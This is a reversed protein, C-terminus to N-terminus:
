QSGINIDTQLSKLAENVKMVGIHKKLLKKQANYLLSSPTMTMGLVETCLHATDRVILINYHRNFDYERNMKQLNVASESSILLLQIGSDRIQRTNQQIDEIEKQCFECNSDFYLLWTPKADLNEANIKKGELDRFEFVPLQSIRASIAKKSIIQRVVNYGLYLLTTCIFFGLSYKLVQRNM